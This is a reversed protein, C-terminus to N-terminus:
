AVEFSNQAAAERQSSPMPRTVAGRECGSGAKDFDEAIVPNAAEGIRPHMGDANGDRQQDRETVSVLAELM